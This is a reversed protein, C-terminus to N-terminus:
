IRDMEALVSSYWEDQSEEGAYMGAGDYTVSSGYLEAYGAVHDRIADSWNDWSSNGWGWANYERFNIEGWSSEIGSIAPSIRPDVGYDSAAQAFDSGHGALPTGELYADIRAAWDSVESSSTNTVIPETSASPAAPVEVTATNGSATTFTATPQAPQNQAAAPQQANQAPTSPTQAPNQANPNAATPLGAAADIAQQAAAIAQARADSENAAIKDAAQQVEIRTNRADELARRANERKEEVASKSAKLTEQTQILDDHLTCLNNIEATNRATITDFYHLTSLFEGLDQSALLLDVISPASQQFLYLNKISAATRARQDPLKAEIEVTRAESEAIQNNIDELEAEADQYARATEEIKALMDNVQGQAQTPDNAALAPAGAYATLAFSLACAVAAHRHKLMRQEM